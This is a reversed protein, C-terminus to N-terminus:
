QTELTFLKDTADEVVTLTAECIPCTASFDYGSYEAPKDELRTCLENIIPSAACADQLRAVLEANSLHRFRTIM